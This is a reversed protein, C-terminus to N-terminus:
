NSENLPRGNILNRYWYYSDKPIRKLNDYDVYILGFRHDYGEAWEFNDMLSWAFYGVADVGDKKAKYLEHIYDNMFKIRDNDHVKGDCCVKDFCSIGNETIVFPLKYREYLFKPGWYLSKPTIPWGIVTYPYDKDFPVLEPRGDIGKKYLFGKYINQCYFDLPQCITKYDKVYNDPLFKELRKLMNSPYTGLVAPDSWWACSFVWSNIDDDMYFFRDRAASVDDQENTYPICVDCCPAYGIKSDPIISRIKKVALGHAILVNHCVKIASDIDMNAGPAHIDSCHGLGVFAQPENFTIFHKVRDGFSKAVVEAYYEFWESSKPNLWGGNEMLKSPYDWHFLTIYPTIDNKLLEDIVSNYFDLGKQNIKGIGNPLIRSWSLSFRYAKVGLNKILRIDDVYRHYFDCAKDGNANKKIRGHQKCFDDWINRGKNDEYAAGEIQYSSTAVGWIFDDDFKM